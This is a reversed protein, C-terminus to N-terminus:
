AQDLLTELHHQKKRQAASAKTETVEPHILRAGLILAIDLRAGHQFDAFVRSSATAM